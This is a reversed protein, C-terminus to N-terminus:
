KESRSRIMPFRGMNHKWVSLMERGRRARHSLHQPVEQFLECEMDEPELLSRILKESMAFPPGGKFNECPFLHIVLRGEPKVLKKTKRAWDERLAPPLSCIFLYDYVLHFSDNPHFEFFDGLLLNLKGKAELPRLFSSSQVRRRAKTLATKSLEIGTVEYGANALTFADAGSGFGPVFARGQNVANGLVYPKQKAAESKPLLDNAVMYHLLPSSGSTEWPTIGERWTRDWDGSPNGADIIRGDADMGLAGPLPQGFINTRYGSERENRRQEQLHKEKLPDQQWKPLEVPDAHSGQEEQQQERTQNRRLLNPRPSTEGVSKSTSYLRWKVSSLRITPTRCLASRLRCTGGRRPSLSKM